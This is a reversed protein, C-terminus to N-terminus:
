AKPAAVALIRGGRGAQILVVSKLGDELATPLRYAVPKGRWGGLRTLERVVNKQVITQGKNDGSKVAVDQERPDYRVLWVEGGGKPPRASGVYVRGSSFRVQPPDRRAKAAEAVLKDVKDPKAGSAQAAGDVVVQPTYPERLALRAVYAKQRDTFEPKAFTDAWGLYDWYDVPFTLPLVGPKEALRAVHANADGCSACGQATYLEIVVPPRAAAPGASVLAPLALLALSFLAAKRM